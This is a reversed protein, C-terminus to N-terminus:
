FACNPLDALWINVNYYVQENEWDTQGVMRECFHVTVSLSIVRERKEKKREKERGGLKGEDERLWERDKYEHIAQGRHTHPFATPTHKHTEPACVNNWVAIWCPPYRIRNMDQPALQDTLSLSEDTISEHCREVTCWLCHRQTHTQTHALTHSTLNLPLSRANIEWLLLFSPLSM